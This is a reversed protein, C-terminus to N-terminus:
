AAKLESSGRVGRQMCFVTVMFKSEIMDSIKRGCLEADEANICSIYVQCDALTSWNGYQLDSAQM